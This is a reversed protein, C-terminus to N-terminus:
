ASIPVNNSAFDRPAHFTVMWISHLTSELTMIAIIILNVSLRRIIADTM